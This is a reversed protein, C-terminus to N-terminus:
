PQEPEVVEIYRDVESVPHTSTKGNPWRVELREVARASGLGFLSRSDSHSLYSGGSSVWRRQTLGNATLRVEAGYANRNSRTGRLRIGLWHNTDATTNRLLRAPGANECLLLDPRGDNDFDGWASGRGVQPTRFVEGAQESVERFTGQHNRFLQPRQRYTIPGGSEEVHPDVHGNYTFLDQWGDRDADLFSLGFTVAHLSAPVLGQSVATDRFVPNLHTFLALGEKSFNGIGIALNGDNRVDAVHVGMGARAKGNEDVAIGAEQAVETFRKGQENRFLHNPTTDNTVVLDCWGDGDYDLPLVGLAKGTVRSIGVQDSVERFKGSGLNRYCHSRVPQYQNPGCYIRKGSGSRCPIDTEPSWKVYECVFLDLLGDGDYDFWAASTHYAWRRDTELGSGRTVDQFRGSGDNRFLRNSGLCTILLDDDGDNDIDGVACGLGYMTTQLGAAATVDKFSGNGENRYLAPTYAKGPRDPWHASNVLLVDLWGDGDYDLFAGGSGISEPMLYRGDAGNFHTFRVGAEQAVDEFRIPPGAASTDKAAAPLSAPRCGAALVTLLSAGAVATCYKATRCNLKM